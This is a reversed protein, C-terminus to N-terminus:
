PLARGSGHRAAEHQRGRFYAVKRRRGVWLHAAHNVQKGSIFPLIHIRLQKSIDSARSVGNEGEHDCDPLLEEQRFVPALNLHNLCALVKVAVRRRGHVLEQNEPHVRAQIQCFLLVAVCIMGEVGVGHQCAVHFPHSIADGCHAVAHGSDDRIQGERGRRELIDARRRRDKKGGPPTLDTRNRLSRLIHSPIELPGTIRLCQLSPQARDAFLKGVHIEGRDHALARTLQVEGVYM